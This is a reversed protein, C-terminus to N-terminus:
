QGRSEVGRNKFLSCARMHAALWGDIVRQFDRLPAHASWLRDILDPISRTLEDYLLPEAEELWLITGAPYDRPCVAVLAAEVRDHYDADTADFRPQTTGLSAWGRATLIQSYDQM